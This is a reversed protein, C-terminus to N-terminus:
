LSVSSSVITAFCTPATYYNTLENHGQQNMTCFLLLHM